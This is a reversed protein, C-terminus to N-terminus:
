KLARINEYELLLKNDETILKELSECENFIYRIDTNYNIDFNSLNLEKLSKCSTFMSCMDKMKKVFFNSLNLSTLYKCGYFMGDAKEVKTTKFNSLDLNALSKCYYFMNSMKIVNETNFSKLDLSTLSICDGFLNSMDIVNQTNFKSFKIEILSKCKYFMSDIKTAKMINFSSLDLSELSKCGYFMSSLSTINQTDFQSLDLSTLAECGYFMNDMSTTNKTNFNSLNLNILSKCGFFMNNMTIVNETNFDSIDLEELSKCDRFMNEMNIVYETDFNYMNISILSECGNFMSNMYEVNETTFYLELSELSKCCGFMESMFSVNFTDLHSLNIEKLSTCYSFLGSMDIVNETSINDLNIGNLSSCYSFMYKINNIKNSNFNSLDINIFKDCNYFMYNAKIIHDIFIYKIKYTGKQNFSYFYSFSIIEKNIEIKCNEMIEEENNEGEIYDFENEERYKEFSNIIRVEDNIDEDKIEVEAFIYSIKSKIDDIISFISTSINFSCENNLNKCHLGIIQLDSNRFIIPAGLSSKLTQCNHIMRGNKIELIKGNTFSFENDNSFQFIFINKGCLSNNDLDKINQCLHYFNNINDEDFIEICTYDLNTDTFKKRKYTIEIIKEKNKYEIKIKKGISINEKNLISNTTILCRKFPIDKDNLELFFGIGNCNEQKIKCIADEGKYLNDIEKKTMLNKSIDENKNNNNILNDINEDQGYYIYLNNNKEIIDYIKKDIKYPLLKYKYFLAENDGKLKINKILIKMKAENIEENDKTEKLEMDTIKPDFNAM